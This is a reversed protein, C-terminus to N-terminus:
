VTRSLVTPEKLLAINAYSTAGNLIEFTLSTPTRGEALLGRVIFLLAM